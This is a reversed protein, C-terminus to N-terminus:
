ARFHAALARRSMKGRENTPISDVFFIRKPAQTASLHTRCHELLATESVDGRVVVCAAVEENRLHSERGFVIAQKVGPFRLLTAEVEAPNVKRGAVNIVDSVRGVIRFGDETRNLLDDPVFVGVALKEDDSNPFYGDAVAASRVRVRDDDGFFELQVGELPEGIFGEEVLPAVRDYCIGGCESSGYFSHITHGFKRRFNKALELPLPAGASICLRLTPLPPPEEVDCLAQFLVPTGPFVSAGSAIIGDIIARPMRDRSLAIRVGRALLPTLLNSFGYSHSVPIVAFNVDRDSIEMTGCIQNCDALLQASRFRIARPAATTGSTVKLLTPQGEGWDITESIRLRQIEVDSENPRILLSARCTELANTRETESISTELPLIVVGRRWSSLLLAPWSAHNGIQVAVIEGARCDRLLEREFRQAENEIASFTRVVEGAVDIIAPEDGRRVRTTDWAALLLDDNGGNM